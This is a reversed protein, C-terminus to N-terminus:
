TKPEPIQTQPYLVFLMGISLRFGGRSIPNKNESELGYAM